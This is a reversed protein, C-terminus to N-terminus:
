YKPWRIHLASENSFVTISPFISPLLLLPQCVILHNSPMMSEIPMLKLLNGSITFSRSPQHAATWPTAFLQFPSFSQVVVPEKSLHHSQSTPPIDQQSKRARLFANLWKPHLDAGWHWKQGPKALPKMGWRIARLRWASWKRDCRWRYACEYCLSLSPIVLVTYSIQFLGHCGVGTSKGPFDWPHLLRTPQLGHPRSFNSVVSHSWKWKESEHMPSPFPLRSWHEQRSVGLAPPAQHAATQPIGFLWVHSFRRLLLLLLLLLM